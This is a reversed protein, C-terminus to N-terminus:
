PKLSVEISPAWALQFAIHPINLLIYHVQSGHHYFLTWLSTCLYVDLTGGRNAGCSTSCITGRGGTCACMMFCWTQTINVPYQYQSQVVCNPPFSVCMLCILSSCHTWPPLKTGGGEPKFLTKSIALETGSCYVSEGGLNRKLLFTISLM